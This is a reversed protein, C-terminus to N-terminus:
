AFLARGIRVMTAGEEIAVEYDDTMGMSLEELRADPVLANVRDRIERLRSFFPRARGPDEVLPAIGMLGRVRTGPLRLVRAVLDAASDPSVGHKQPEASVNVQILIEAPPGATMLPSRRSIEEALPLSDVSHILHFLRLAEKVKNRQLSGVLHWSVGPVLPIKERAEQVRNEGFVRLGAAVAERIRDPGVSKTVAVLLVSDARRGSRAAADAIRARVRAVNAAIDAM